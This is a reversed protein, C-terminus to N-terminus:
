TRDPAEVLTQLGNEALIAGTFRPDSTVERVAFPPTQFSALLDATEFEAEALILGNLDGQFEDVALLVGPFSSRLRHRLKKIRVGPLSTALLAFEQESLYISSILRTHVDVDAKRTLRLMPAAGDIPRAERLRLRSGTVYLDTFAETQAIHARPVERCLWRREREVSVYHLKPFGLAAAVQHDIEM